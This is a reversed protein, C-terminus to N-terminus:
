AQLEGLLELDRVAPLVIEGEEAGGPLHARTQLLLFLVFHSSMNILPRLEYKM